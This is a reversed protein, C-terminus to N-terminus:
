NIKKVLILTEFVIKESVYGLGHLTLTDTFVHFHMTKYITAVNKCCMKFCTKLSSINVRIKVSFQNRFPMYKVM